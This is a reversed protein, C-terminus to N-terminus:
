ARKEFHQAHRVEWRSLSVFAKKDGRLGHFLKPRIGYWPCTLRKKSSNQFPVPVM